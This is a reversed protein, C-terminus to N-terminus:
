RVRLREPAMESRVPGARCPKGSSRPGDGALRRLRLHTRTQLILATGPLRPLPAVVLGRARRGAKLRGSREGYCVGPGPRHIVHGGVLVRPIAARSTPAKSGLHRAGLREPRCQGWPRQQRGRPCHVRARGLKARSRIRSQDDRRKRRRHGHLKACPPRDAAAHSAGPSDGSCTSRARAPAARRPTAHLRWFRRHASDPPPRLRDGRPVRPCGREAGLMLAVATAQSRV